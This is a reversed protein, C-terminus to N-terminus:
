CQMADCKLDGEWLFIKRWMMEEKVSYNYALFKLTVDPLSIALLPKEECNM